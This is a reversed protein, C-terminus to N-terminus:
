FTQLKPPKMMYLRTNTGTASTVSEVDSEASSTEDQQPPRKRKEAKRRGMRSAAGAVFPVFFYVIIIYLFLSTVRAVAGGISFHTRLFSALWREVLSVRQPGQFCHLQFAQDDRLVRERVLKLLLALIDDHAKYSPDPLRRPAEQDRLHLVVARGHLLPAMDRLIRELATIQKEHEQVPCGSYDLGIEGLAVVGPVRLFQKLLGIQNDLWGEERNKHCLKPHLGFSLKLRPDDQLELWALHQRKYAQLLQQRGRLDCYNAIGFM